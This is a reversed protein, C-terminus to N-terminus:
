RSVRRQTANTHTYTTHFGPEFTTFLQSRSSLFDKQAWFHDIAQQSIDKVTVGAMAGRKTHRKTQGLSHPPRPKAM